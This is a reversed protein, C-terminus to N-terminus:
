CSFLTIIQELSSHQPRIMVSTIKKREVTSHYLGRVRLCKVAGGGRVGSSAPTIITFPFLNTLM